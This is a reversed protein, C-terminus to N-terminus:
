RERDRLERRQGRAGEWIRSLEELRGAVEAIEKVVKAREDEPAQRSRRERLLDALIRKLAGQAEQLGAALCAAADDARRCDDQRHSALAQLQQLDLLYRQEMNKWRRQEERWRADAADHAAREDGFAQQAAELRSGADFVEAVVFADDARAQRRLCDLETELLSQREKLARLAQERADLLEHWRRQQRRHRSKLMAVAEWAAENATATSVSAPPLPDAPAPSPAGVKEWLRSIEQRLDDL